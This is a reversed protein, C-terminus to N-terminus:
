KLAKAGNILFPVDIDTFVYRGLVRIRTRLTNYKVGLSDALERICDFSENNLLVERAKYNSGRANVGQKSKSIKARTEASVELGWKPHKDGSFDAHNDSMKKRTEVSHNKGYNPNNVGKTCRHNESMKALSEPTHKKGYMGNSDKYLGVGFRNNKVGLKAESMKKLAEKTHKYGSSGEGGKTMNTLKVGLEKLQSIRECEILFALEEDIDEVIKKVKFGGVKRVLRHWYQNRDTKTHCRSGKGKGVYFIAGTDLRTHEYVYFM